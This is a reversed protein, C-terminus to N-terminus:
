PKATAENFRRMADAMQREVERVQERPAGKDLLQRKERRLRTVQRDAIRAKALLAQPSRELTQAEQRKGDERLGDIRRDIRKAENINAYFPGSQSASGNATGFFRGLLPVKHM